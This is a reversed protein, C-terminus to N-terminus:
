INIGGSQARINDDLPGAGLERSMELLLAGITLQKSPNAGSSVARQLRIIEDLLRFIGRGKSTRLQTLSLSGSLRQLEWALQDLFVSVDAESWAEAAQHVSIQGGLLARLGLRQAALEEGGDGSYLQHALLPLGGALSLLQQSQERDSTTRDLWNLCAEPHPTALRLIQCRSRITAPVGHIGHCVLIFYTDKTPEELSKLLANYANLNMSDAPALVIVKRVGFGATTNTFRVVNRIQEIKIVRSKDEPQVWQFDGHSGSASLRCAHCHGCNLAGQTHSCLLLRSLAIAFQSKGTHQEGVLMLAHPLQGAALRERFHGWYQNHWPMPSSQEPLDSLEM